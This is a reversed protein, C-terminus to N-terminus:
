CFSFYFIIMVVQYLTGDWGSIYLLFSLVGFSCSWLLVMNVDLSFLGLDVFYCIVGCYFLVCFYQIVKIWCACGLFPCLCEGLTSWIYVEEFGLVFLMLVIIGVLGGFGGM